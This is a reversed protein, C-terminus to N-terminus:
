NVPATLQTATDHGSFDIVKAAITDEGAPQIERSSKRARTHEAKIRPERHQYSASPPLSSGSARKKPPM